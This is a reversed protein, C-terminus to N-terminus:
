KSTCGLLAAYNEPQIKVTFTDYSSFQLDFPFATLSCEDNELGRVTFYGVYQNSSLFPVGAFVSLYVFKVRSHQTAPERELITNLADKASIKVVSYGAKSIVMATVVAYTCLLVTAQKRYKRPINQNNKFLRFLSFLFVLPSFLVAGVAILALNTRGRLFYAARYSLGALMILAALMVTVFASIENESVKTGRVCQFSDSNPMGVM